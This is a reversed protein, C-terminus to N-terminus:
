YHFISTTEIDFSFCDTLYEQNKYIVVDNKKIINNIIAQIKKKNWKYELSTKENFQYAM